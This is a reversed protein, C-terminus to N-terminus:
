PEVVWLENGSAANTATFFLREGSRTLHSPCLGEAGVVRQTGAPTGDTSWLACDSGSGAAFYARDGARVPPENGLSASPTEIERLMFTGQPTGDSRWPQMGHVGDNSAFVVLNGLATFDSPEIRDLQIRSVFRTGEATGDSVWLEGGNLPDGAALYLQNGAQGLVTRIGPRVPVTNRITGDTRWLGMSVGDFATFYVPGGPLLTTFDSPGSFRESSTRSPTGSPNIDRLMLTGSETGDTVWPEFGHVGDDAGFVVKNGMSAANRLSAGAPIPGFDKILHTGGPTGDSIWLGSVTTDAQYATFVARGSVDVFDDPRSDGRGPDIDELMSTGQLTGDSTWPEAGHAADAAAFFLRHGIGHLRTGSTLPNCRARACGIAPGNPPVPAVRVTGKETGDSRWLAIASAGDMAVFYLVGDLDALGDPISHEPGPVIDKVIHARPPTSGCGLLLTLAVTSALVLRKM